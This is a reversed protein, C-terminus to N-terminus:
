IQTRIEFDDGTQALHGVIQKGSSV